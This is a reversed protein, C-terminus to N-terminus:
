MFINRVILNFLLCTSVYEINSEFGDYVVIILDVIDDYLKIIEM